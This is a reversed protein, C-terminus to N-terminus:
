TAPEYYVFVDDDADATVKIRVRTSNDGDSWVGVGECVLVAVEHAGTPLTYTDRADKVAELARVKLLTIGVAQEASIRVAQDAAMECAETSTISDSGGEAAVAGSEDSASSSEDSTLMPVLVFAYVVTALVSLLICGLGPGIRNKFLLVVGIAFGAMPLLISAAIGAGVLGSGDARELEVQERYTQERADQAGAGDSAPPRASRGAERELYAAEWADRPEPTTMCAM